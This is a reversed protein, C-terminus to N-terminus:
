TARMLRLRGFEVLAQQGEKPVVAEGVAGGREAVVGFTGEQRGVLGSTVGRLVKQRALAPPLRKLADVALADEIATLVTAFLM